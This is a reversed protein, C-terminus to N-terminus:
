VPLVLRVWGSLPRYDLSRYLAQAGPDDRDAALWVLGHGTALGARTAITTILSAYGQRRREPVVGVGQLAAVKPEPGAGPVLRATAIPQGDLRVLYARLAGRELGTELSALREGAERPALGFIAREVEEYPGARGPTVSEIRLGPDLHPVIGARRTWLVVERGVVVWGADILRETLGVPRATAELICMTPVEGLSRWRAALATASAAWDGEGWRPAVAHNFGIGHGPWRVLGMGLGPDWELAAGAIVALDTSQTEIALAEAANPPRPEDSTPDRRARADAPRHIPPPPDGSPGPDRM